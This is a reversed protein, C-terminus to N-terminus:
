SEELSVVLYLNKLDKVYLYIISIGDFSHKHAFICSFVNMKGGNGNLSVARFLKYYSMFTQFTIKFIVPVCQRIFYSFQFILSVAFPYFSPARNGEIICVKYESPSQKLHFFIIKKVDSRKRLLIDLVPCM